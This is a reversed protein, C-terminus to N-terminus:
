DVEYVWAHRTSPTVRATASVAVGLVAHIRHSDAGALVLALRRRLAPIGRKKLFRGVPVASGAGPGLFPEDSQPARIVLRPELREGDLHLRCGYLGAGNAGPAAMRRSRVSLGAGPVTLSTGPQAPVEPLRDQRLTLPERGFIALEADMVAHLRRRIRWPHAHGGANVLRHILDTLAGHGPLPPRAPDLERLVTRLVAARLSPPLARFARRDLGALGEPERDLLWAHPRPVPVALRSAVTRATEELADATEEMVSALRLLARSLNPNVHERLHPVVVHRLRNRRHRVDENTADRRFPVEHRRAYREIEARTVGLLPRLVTLTRGGSTPLGHQRRMGRLGDPGAGSLVRDLVTEAQDDAHHALLVYGSDFRNAAEILFRRRAARARTELSGVPDIRARGVHIPIGLGRCSAEVLAQDADADAGRLGHNLHAAALRLRLRDERNLAAIAHLMVMSDVGGSVALVVREGPAPGDPEDLIRQLHIELNM